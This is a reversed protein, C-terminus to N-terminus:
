RLLKVSLVMSIILTHVQLVLEMIGHIAMLTDMDASVAISGTPLVILSLACVVIKKM